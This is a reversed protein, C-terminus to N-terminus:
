YESELRKKSIEIKNLVADEIESQTFGLLDGLLLYHSYVESINDEINTMLNFLKIFLNNIDIYESRSDHLELNYTSMFLFILMLGDAYEELVRDYIPKKISWYKFSKVENALEGLEVLLALKNKTFMEGINEGYRSSFLVDLKKNEEYIRKM